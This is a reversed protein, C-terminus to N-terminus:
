YFIKKIKEDNLCFGFYWLVRPKNGVIRSAGHKQKSVVAILMDRDNIKDFELNEIITNGGSDPKQTKFICHVTETDDYFIPDIHTDIYGGRLCVGCVIGNFYPPPYLYDEIEFLNKIRKQIQYAVEPYELPANTLGFGRTTLRTPRYKAYGSDMDTPPVFFPGRYNNLAWVNLDNVEEESLFDKIIKVFM